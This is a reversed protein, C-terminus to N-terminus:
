MLAIVLGFRLNQLTYKLKTEVERNARQHKVDIDFDSIGYGLEGGFMPTFYYRYSAGGEWVTASLDSVDAQIARLDLSLISQSGFAWKGFGGISGTPATYSRGRSFQVSNSSGAVLADLTADLFLAGIGIGLGAQANETSWLAFRYNLFLQDSDFNTHVSRGVQYTSDRFVIDRTLVQSANRRVFQYGVELEHRRGPRWTAAFRPQFKDKELGLIEEVDIDTGQSQDGDVRLDSSLIVSAGSLTFDWTDRLHNGHYSQAGLAGTSLFGFVFLTVITAPTPARM